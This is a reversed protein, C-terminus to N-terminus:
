TASPCIQSSLKIRNYNIFSYLIITNEEKKFRMITNDHKNRIKLISYHVRASRVGLRAYARAVISDM